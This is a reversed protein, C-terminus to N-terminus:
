WRSPPTTSNLSKAGIHLYSDNHYETQPLSWQQPPKVDQLKRILLNRKLFCWNCVLQWAILEDHRGDVMGDGFDHPLNTDPQTIKKSSAFGSSDDTTLSSNAHVQPVLWLWNNTTTEEHDHHNVVGTCEKNSSVAMLFRGHGATWPNVFFHKQQRLLKMFPTCYVPISVGGVRVAM